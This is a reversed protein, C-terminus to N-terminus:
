NNTEGNARQLAVPVRRRRSPAILPLLTTQDPEILFLAEASTTSTHETRSRWTKCPLYPSPKKGGLLGVKAKAHAYM